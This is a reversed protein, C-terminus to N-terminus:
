RPCGRTSLYANRRTFTSRFDLICKLACTASARQSRLTPAALAARPHGRRGPNLVDCGAAADAGRQLARGAVQTWHVRLECIATRARARRARHQRRACGDAALVVAAPRRGVRLTAGLCRRMVKAIKLLELPQANSNTTAPAAKSHLVSCREHRLCPPATCAGQFSSHRPGPRRARCSRQTREDSALM